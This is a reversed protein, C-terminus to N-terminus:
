ISLMKMLTNYDEKTEDKCKYLKLKCIKIFTITGIKKFGLKHTYRLSPFNNPHILAHAKKIGREHLYCLIKVMAKSAIGLGRYEPATYGAYLYASDSSVRIKREIEMVYAENFAVFTWHVLDGDIEAIACMRGDEFIAEVDVKFKKFNNAIKPFEDRQVLKVDVEVKVKAKPCLNTLTREFVFIKETRFISYLIRGIRSRIGKVKENM